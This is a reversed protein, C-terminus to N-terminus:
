SLRPRPAPTRARPRYGAALAARPRPRPTVAAVITARGRLRAGPAYGAFSWALAGNPTRLHFSRRGRRLDRGRAADGFRIASPRASGSPTSRGTWRPPARRPRAGARPGLRRRLRPRRRPPMRLLPPPRRRARDGRRPLLARHLGDGMVERHRGRFATLCAIWARSRWRARGLTGDPRHLRGGRNGMLLGREPVAHLSGDPAVRNQLPSPREVPPRTTSREGSFRMSMRSRDLGSSRGAGRRAGGTAPPAAGCRWARRRLRRQLPEAIRGRLHRRM